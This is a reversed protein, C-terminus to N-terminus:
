RGSGEAEWMKGRGAKGWREVEEGGVGDDGGWGEGVERLGVAM